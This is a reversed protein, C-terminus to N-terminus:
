FSVLYNIDISKTPLIVAMTKSWIHEFNIELEEMLPPENEYDEGDEANLGGGVAPGGIGLGGGVGSMGGYDDGFKENGVMGQKSSPPTFSDGYTRGGGKRIGAGVGSPVNSGYGKFGDVSDGSYWEDEM